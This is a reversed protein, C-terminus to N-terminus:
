IWSWYTNTRSHHTPYGDLWKYGHTTSYVCNPLGNRLLRDHTEHDITISHIRVQYFSPIHTYLKNFNWDEGDQM